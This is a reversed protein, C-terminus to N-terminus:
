IELKGSIFLKVIKEIETPYCILEPYMFWVTLIQRYNAATFNNEIQPEDEKGTSLIRRILSYEHTHLETFKQLDFGIIRPKHQSTKEVESLYRYLLLDKEPIKHKPGDTDEEPTDPAVQEIYDKLVIHCYVMFFMKFKNEENEPSRLTKLQERSDETLRMLQKYGDSLCGHTTGIIGSFHKKAKKSATIGDIVRFIQNQLDILNVKTEMKKLKKLEYFM